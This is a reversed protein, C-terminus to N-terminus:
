HLIHDCIPKEKRKFQNTDDYTAEPKHGSVIPEKVVVRFWLHLVLPLFYILKFAEHNMWPHVSFASLFILLAFCFYIFLGYFFLILMLKIIAFSSQLGM